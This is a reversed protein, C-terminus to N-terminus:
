YTQEQNAFNKNQEPNEAKYIFLCATKILTTRVDPNSDINEIRRFPQNLKWQAALYNSHATNHDTYDLNTLSLLNANGLDNMQIPNYQYVDKETNFVYASSGITMYRKQGEKKYDPHEMVEHAIISSIVFSEEGVAMTPEYELENLNVRDYNGSITKPMKGLNFSQHGPLKIYNSRRDLFFTIIGKSYIVSARKVVVTGNEIFSQSKEMANKLSIEETTALSPPLRLNIMPLTTITPRSSQLFTNDQNLVNGSMTTMVIPRFSFVAFLRKLIVADNRGYVLEPNDYKNIKCMDISTIFDNFTEHFLTGNRMNLVCNWLQGQVNARNMLDHVTSETSCVVDNPDSILAYMLEYDAQTDLQNQRQFRARAIGAMNSLLFHQELVEIRPLFLAVIVPHVYDNNNMSRQNETRGLFVNTDINHYRLSQLVIQSHLNKSVQHMKVIENMYHEDKGSLSRSGDQMHVVEVNGLLKMMNTMPAIVASMDNGELYSEYARRFVHFEEESLGYKKKYMRAKELIQHYPMNRQQYKDRILKAFKQGRKISKNRKELFSSQIQDVLDSNGYKQQLRLLDSNTINEKKMLRRVEDSVSGSSKRSSRSNRSM